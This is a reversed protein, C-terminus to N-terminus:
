KKELPATTPLPGRSTTLMSPVYWVQQYSGSSLPTSAEPLKLLPSTGGIPFPNPSSDGLKIPLTWPKGFPSMGSLAPSTVSMAKAPTASPLSPTTPATPPVSTGGQFVPGSSPTSGVFPPPEITTLYNWFYGGHLEAEFFLRLQEIPRGLFTALSHLGSQSPASKSMCLAGRLAMLELASFPPYVTPTSVHSAAVMGTTTFVPPMARGHLLPDNSTLMRGDAPGLPLGCVSVGGDVCKPSGTSSNNSNIVTKSASLTTAHKNRKISSNSSAAFAASRLRSQKRRHKFWLKIQKSTVNELEAELQALREASPYSNEDFAKQLVQIEYETRRSRNYQAKFQGLRTLSERRHQFWKSIQTGTVGLQSALAAKQQPSPYAEESFAELLREKQSPTVRWKTSASASRQTMINALLQPSLAFWPRDETFEM